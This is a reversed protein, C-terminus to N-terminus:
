DKFSNHLCSFVYKKIDNKPSKDNAYKVRELIGELKQLSMGKEVVFKSVDETFEQDTPLSFKELSAKVTLTQNLSNMDELIKAAEKGKAKTKKQTQKTNREQNILDARLKDLINACTNIKELIESTEM